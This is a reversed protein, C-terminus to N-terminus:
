AAQATDSMVADCRPCLGSSEVLHDFTWCRPCKAGDAKAVTAQMEEGQQVTLSAVMCWEALDYQTALELETQPLTLAIKVESNSGALGTARAEKEIVGNVTARLAMLRDWDKLLAPAAWAAEGAVFSQLYLPNDQGMYMRWAEDATFPMLPMLHTLIAQLIFHLVTQTARREASNKGDCYLRDKRIDFYLASLDTACLNQLAHYCRAFRYNDYDDRVQALTSTVRALVLKELAPLQAYDVSHQSADFDSLNGLLYRITNRLRRYVESVGKMVEEGYVIDDSYDSSAVWLRMQDAGFKEILELADAGNGLSKSMKRGKSDVVFGHTLVQKYPAHHDKAVSLLLSSHFWGRHQDSGELYLDAPSHHGERQQLVHYFTAGSDYWVDLIGEEKVLDNASLKNAELWGQPLLEAVGLDGWANIGTKEIAAAVSDFVAKDTIYDGTKINKFIAIPVGWLRQRSLCWDPRKEIMGGIRKSGYDPVWRVKDIESMAQQRLTQQQGQAAKDMAMFWQETTRYILPKRSRWSMPYSHKLKHWRLLRGSAELEKVIDAQAEWINKGALAVATVPLAAVSAEYAGNGLVPCSLDLGAAQGVIFDELGHAPATHVFGTGAETTVHDGSLMPVATSYLVQLCQWGAFGSGQQTEEVKHAEVGLMKLAAPLLEQALWYSETLKATAKEHVQTPTIRVYTIDSGYAIARNAPLTWPTTTWAVVFQNDRGVIPFKVYVATSEHDHYEIEAEALATEEVTSWMVPKFGKYLLGTNLLDGLLRVMAAENVFDMTLYPHAFDGVSGMRQWNTKQVGIWYKAKERCLDRFASPSLSDKGGGKERLETEVKWELPLGHCDWGPVFPTDYGAMFKSRVVVDKLLSPVLHGAHLAGNAYPPGCHLIFPKAGKRAARMKQYMGEQQWLALRAPEMTSLNARMPYDTQPLNLTDKLETM